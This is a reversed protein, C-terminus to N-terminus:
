NAARAVITITGNDTLGLTVMLHEGSGRAIVISEVARGAKASPTRWVTEAVDRVTADSTDCQGEYLAQRARGELAVIERENAARMERDLEERVLSDIEHENM